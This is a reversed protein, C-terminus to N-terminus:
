CMCLLYFKTEMVEKMKWCILTYAAQGKEGCDVECHVGGVIDFM